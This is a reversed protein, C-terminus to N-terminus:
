HEKAEVETLLMKNPRSKLSFGKLIAHLVPYYM